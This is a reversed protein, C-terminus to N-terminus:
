KRRYDESTFRVDGLGREIMRARLVDIAIELVEYRTTPAYYEEEDVEGLMALRRELEERDEAELELHAHWGEAPELTLAERAMGIPNFTLFATGMDLRWGNPDGETYWEGRFAQRMVEGVYGGIAGQVLLLAQDNQAVEARADRVYHDVLSLTDQTGDLPVGYRTAVFRVCAAVLDAINAPPPGLPAEEAPEDDSASAEDDEDLTGNVQGNGNLHANGNLHPHAPAPPKPKNREDDDPPAMAASCLRGVRSRFLWSGGCARMWACRAASTAAASAGGVAVFAGRDLAGVRM